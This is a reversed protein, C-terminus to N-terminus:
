GGLLTTIFTYFSAAGPAHTSLFPIGVLLLGLVAIVFYRNGVVRKTTRVTEIEPAITALTDENKTTRGNTRITQEKVAAVETKLDNLAEQHRVAQNVLWAQAQGIESLQTYLFVQDDTKGKLLGDPIKSAFPPISLKDDTM